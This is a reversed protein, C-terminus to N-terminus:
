SVALDWRESITNLVEDNVARRIEAKHRAGSISLLAAVSELSTRKEETLVGGARYADVLSTYAQCEAVCCREECSWECCIETGTWNKGLNRLMGKCQEAPLDLLKPWMSVRTQLTWQKNLDLMMVDCSRLIKCVYFKQKQLTFHETLIHCVIVILFLAISSRPSLLYQYIILSPSLLSLVTTWCEVSCLLQRWEQLEQRRVWLSAFM